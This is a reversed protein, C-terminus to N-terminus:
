QAVEQREGLRDIIHAQLDLTPDRHQIAWSLQSLADQVRAAHDHGAALADLAQRIYATDTNM